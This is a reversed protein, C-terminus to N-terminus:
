PQGELWRADDRDQPRDAARKMRLLDPRAAVLVHVGDLDRPEAHAILDIFGRTGPPEALVDLRGLDTDLTFNGGSYLWAADVPPAQVDPPWGHPHAHIGALVEALRRCNEHTHEHCIDLDATLRPSGHLRMATGGIVVYEVGANELLELLTRPDFAPATMPTQGRARQAARDLTALWRAEATLRDLTAPEDTM